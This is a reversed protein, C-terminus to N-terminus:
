RLSNNKLRRDLRRHKEEWYGRRVEISDGSELGELALSQLEDEARQDATVLGELYAEITLGQAEARARLKAELQPHISISMKM